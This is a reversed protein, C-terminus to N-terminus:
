GHAERLNIHIFDTIDAVVCTEQPVTFVGIM